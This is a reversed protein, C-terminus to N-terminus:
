QTSNYDSMHFYFPVVSLTEIFAFNEFGILFVSFEVELYQTRSFTPLNQCIVQPIITLFLM